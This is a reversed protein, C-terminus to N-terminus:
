SSQLRRCCFRPDVRPVGPDDILGEGVGKFVMIKSDYVLNGKRSGIGKIMNVDVVIEVKGKGVIRIDDNIIGNVCGAALIGM